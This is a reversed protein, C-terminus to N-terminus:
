KITIKKGNKIYLGKQAKVVRQGALNYIVNEAKDATAVTNIGTTEAFGIFERAAADEIKLYAKGEPVFEGLKLLYFGVGKVGDALVYITELDGTVSGDSVRLDNKDYDYDSAVDIINATYEGAPVNIVVGEGAPVQTTIDLQVYGDKYVATYADIEYDFDVDYDKCSFTTWGCEGVTFPVTTVEPFDPDTVVDEPIEVTINRFYYIVEEEKTLNFAISHFDNYYGAEEEGNMHMEGDCEAPVTVTKEITEWDTTFPISGICSWHVYDGPENHCQTDSSVEQTAMCDFTVKIKTGAPVIQPLRIWFQSDWDDGAGESKAASLIEIEGDGNAAALEVKTSPSEKKYFCRADNQLIEAWVIEEEPQPEPADALEVAPADELEDYVDAPIEFKFNDFVFATAVKNKALNFAITYMTKNGSESTAQNASVKGESEFTQWEDTFSGSGIFTYWNYSGPAEHAQTDFDGAKDAKYDFSVRYKTGAPLIKPFSVFFQTDWDQAPDDGSQVLIGRSGDKGVGDSISAKWPGGIAQETKSFCSVDTGEMDGNTILDVWEDVVVPIYKKVYVHINKFYCTYHEGKALNFAITYMGDKGGNQGKDMQADVTREGSDFETWENATFSIDGAGYYMNYDGPAGHAQSGVTVSIDAMVDMTIKFMDDEHLVNEPGITVFFQSDWEVFDTTGAEAAEEQSRVIVRYAEMQEDYIAEADTQETDPVGDTVRWEHVWGVVSEAPIEVWDQASAVGAMCSLALTAFMKTIRKM